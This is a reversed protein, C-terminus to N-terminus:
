SVRKGTTDEFVKRVEELNSSPANAHLVSLVSTYEDPLLYQLSAVHQGVKIFVGGNAICLKLVRHAGRLHCQHLKEKSEESERDGRMTWKYDVMM